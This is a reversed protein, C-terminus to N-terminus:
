LTYQFNYYYIKYYYKTEKPTNNVVKFKLNFYGSTTQSKTPIVFGSDMAYTYDMFIVTDNYNDISRITEINVFSDRNNSKQACSALLFTMAMIPVIIRKGYDM